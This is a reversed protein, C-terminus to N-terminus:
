GGPPTRPPRVDTPPATPTAPGPAPAAPVGANSRGTEPVLPQPCPGGAAALCRGEVRYCVVPPQGCQPRPVQEGNVRTSASWPLDGRNINISTGLTTGTIAPRNPDSGLVGLADVALGECGPHPELGLDPEFPRLPNTFIPREFCLANKIQSDIFNYVEDAVNCISNVLSQILQDMIAGIVQSIAVRIAATLLGDGLAQAQDIADSIDDFLTFFKGLCNQQFIPIWLNEDLYTDLIQNGTVLAYQAALDEANRVNDDCEGGTSQEISIPMSNDVAPSADDGGPPRPANWAACESTDEMQLCATQAVDNAVDGAPIALMGGCSQSAADISYQMVCQRGSSGIMAIQAIDGVYQSRVAGMGRVNGDLGLISIVVRRGNCASSSSTEDGAVSAVMNKVESGRVGPASGTKALELTSGAIGQALRCFTGARLTVNQGALETTNGVLPTGAFFYSSLNRGESGSWDGTNAVAHFAINAMDQATTRPSCSGGNGTSSFGAPNCFTTSTSAGLENQAVETMARGFRAFWAVNVSNNLDVSGGGVPLGVNGSRSGRPVLTGDVNYFPAIAYAVAIAADNTSRVMAYQMLDRLAVPRTTPTLSVRTLNPEGYMVPAMPILTNLSIHGENIARLAMYITIIKATSAPVEQTGANHQYVWLPNRDGVYRGNARGDSPMMVYVQANRSTPLINRRVYEDIADGTAQYNQRSDGVLPRPGVVTNGAHAPLAALMTALMLVGMLWRLMTHPVTMATARPRRRWDALRAMSPALSPRLILM